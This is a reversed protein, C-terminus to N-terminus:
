ECRVEMDLLVERYYQKLEMLIQKRHRLFVPIQTEPLQIKAAEGMRRIRCDSLGIGHLFNECHETRNLDSLVIRTGTPIRTALCAYAPKDHTFLGAEKSLRRIDAKTLGCERLPSRVQLEQLARMGPRDGVQDSANTGDIVVQFGDEAAADIIAEFICSKCHYCRTTPNSAIAENSLVDLEITRMEIGLESALRQADEYEFQPQFQTKVYYAKVHEGYKKANWLLFASDAGGSFALAIRPYFKFFDKITM